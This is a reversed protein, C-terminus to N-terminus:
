THTPMTGEIGEPCPSAEPLSLWHPQAVPRWVPGAEPGAADNIRIRPTINMYPRLQIRRCSQVSSNYEFLSWAAGPAADQHSHTSVPRDRRGDGKEWPLAIGCQLFTTCHKQPVPDVAHIGAGLGRVVKCWGPIGRAYILFLRPFLDDLCLRCQSHFQPNCGPSWWGFCSPRFLGRKKILAKGM